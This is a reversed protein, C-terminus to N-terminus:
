TVTSRAVMRGPGDTLVQVGIFPDSLAKLLSSDIPRALRNQNKCQDSISLPISPTTSALMESRWVSHYFDCKYVRWATLGVTTDVSLNEPGEINVIVACEITGDQICEITGNWTGEITGNRIRQKGM